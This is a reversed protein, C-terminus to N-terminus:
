QWYVKLSKWEWELTSKLKEIIREYWIVKEQETEDWHDTRNKADVTKGM